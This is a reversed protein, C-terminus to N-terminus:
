AAIRRSPSTSMEGLISMLPTGALHDALPFGEADLTAILEGAVTIAAKESACIFPGAAHYDGTSFYNTCGCWNMCYRNLGCNLCAMNGITDPNHSCAPLTSAASNVNGLCHRNGHEDGGILRECPYINGSPAFAFEGKGMRCKELPGYGGRLIVTIKSDILNIHCPTGKHYYDLYKSGISRFLGPLRDAHEKAWCASIDPNLYINRVGLNYFYDVIDPLYEVTKPTYVANVPLFPFFHLAQRITTEVMASSGTGDPFIRSSNQAHPPGDCSIGIAIRHKQLDAAIADSFITGNTVISYRMRSADFAEHQEIRQVITKILDFELMPEGGFFGIDITEHQPTHRFIFAIINDVTDLSMTATHKSIYCYRCRLNCRCTVALTYKM